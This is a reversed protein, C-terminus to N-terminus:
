LVRAEPLPDPEGARTTAADLEQAFYGGSAFLMLSAAGLSVTAGWMGDPDFALLASWGLSFLAHLFCNLAIARESWEVKIARRMAVVFLVLLAAGVMFGVADAIVAGAWIAAIVFLTIMWLGFLWLLGTRRTRHVTSFGIIGVIIGGFYIVYTPPFSIPMVPDSCVRLTPLFLCVVLMWGSIGLLSRRRLPLPETPPLENMGEM